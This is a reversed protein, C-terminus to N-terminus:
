RLYYWVILIVVTVIFMGAFVIYRDVTERNEVSRMISNSVGLYNLIDFVKRQVIKLRDKQELLEGLTERGAALYGDLMKSSRDLSGNEASELAYDSVNSDDINRSNSFLEKKQSSYNERDRRKIYSSLANQIHNHTTRLHQLRRRYDDKRIKSERQVMKEMEDLRCGMEYLGLQIDNPQISSSGNEMAAVQQELDHLRRKEEPLLESIM